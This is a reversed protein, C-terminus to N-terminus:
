FSLLKGSCILEDPVEKMHRSDGIIIKHFTEM